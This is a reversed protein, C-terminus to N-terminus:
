IKEKIQIKFEPFRQMYKIVRLKSRDNLRKIDEIDSGERLSCIIEKNALGNECAPTLYTFLKDCQLNISAQCINIDFTEILSYDTTLIIEFDNDLKGLLSVDLGQDQYVDRGTRPEFRDGYILTLIRIAYKPPIKNVIYVDYDGHNDINLHKNLAAGGMINANNFEKSLGKLVQIIEHDTKM